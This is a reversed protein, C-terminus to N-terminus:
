NSYRIYFYIHVNYFLNTDKDWKKDLNLIRSNVNSLKKYIKDSKHTRFERLYKSKLVHLKCLMTKYDGFDYIKYKNSFYRKCVPCKFSPNCKNLLKFICKGCIKTVCTDCKFTKYCQEYCIDCSM